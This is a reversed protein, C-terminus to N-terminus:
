SMKECFNVYSFIKFYNRSNNQLKKAYKTIIKKTLIKTPFFKFIIKHIIKHNKQANQSSKKMLIKTLFFNSIIKHM